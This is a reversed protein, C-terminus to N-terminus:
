YTGTIDYAFRDLKIRYLVRVMGILHSVIYAIRDNIYMIHKYVYGYICGFIFYVNTYYIYSPCVM